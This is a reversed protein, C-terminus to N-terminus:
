ILSHVIEKFKEKGMIKYLDSIDKGGEFQPLVINTFGTKEALVEADKLGQKDNDLLIYVNKYRRKLENVATDSMGYAEGQIALAPIGTNAWVCLADKM